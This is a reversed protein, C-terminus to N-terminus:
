AFCKEISWGLVLLIELVNVFEERAKESSVSILVTVTVPELGQM